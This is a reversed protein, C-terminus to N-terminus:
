QKEYAGLDPFTNLTSPRLNRKIDFDTTDPIVFASDGFDIAQSGPGLEYNNNDTDKFGPDCNRCITNFHNIDSTPTDKAKILCHDFKYNINVGSGTIFDSKLEDDQSGTIICNKFDASNLNYVDTGTKTSQYNNVYVAPTSRQSIKWYNAMTCHLFEYSGGATLACCYSGCNAFVNNWGKITFNYSLLGFGSMNEVITNSLFLHDTAAPTPFVDCQLGIFGNKIIAYNINSFSGNNLWIRDWQGPEEAFSAERRIGQFVVPHNVNGEVNLKGGKYIWLGAGNNFHIKCGAQITLTQTSDIVLYGYIVYPLISDWTFSANLATDLLAYLPFNDNLFRDAVIFHANQGWARLDVDQVSGNTEFIISDTIIYPLVGANPDVTVEVFIWLSDKARIEVDKFVRGAQGNVNMRFNVGPGALRINTKLPQDYPNYVKFNKTTSGISVFVTDFLIEKQSFNLEVNSDTLLDDKKCSSFPLLFALSLLFIFKFLPSLQNLWRSM